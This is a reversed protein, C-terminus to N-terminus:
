STTFRKTILTMLNLAAFIDKFFMWSNCIVIILKQTLSFKQQLFNKNWCILLAHFTIFIWLAHYKEIGSRDIFFEYIIWHFFIREGIIWNSCRESMWNPISFVAFRPMFQVQICVDREDSPKEKGCLLAFDILNSCSFLLFFNM